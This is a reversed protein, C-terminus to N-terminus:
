WSVRLIKIKNVYHMSLNFTMMQKKPYFGVRVCACARERKEEEKRGRWENEKTRKREQNGWRM